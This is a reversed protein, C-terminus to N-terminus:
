LSDVVDITPPDISVNDVVGGAGRHVHVGVLVVNHRQILRNCNSHHQRVQGRAVVLGDLLVGLVRLLEGLDGAPHHQRQAILNVPGQQHAINFAEARVGQVRTSPLQVRM